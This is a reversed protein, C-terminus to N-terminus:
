FYKRFYLLMDTADIGAFGVQRLMTVLQGRHFTSHNFVHALLEYYPMSYPDGNLRKFDLNEKLKSEDFNEVFTKLAETDEKWLIIHENKSGKFASQLWVHDETKEKRMRQLWIHNASVIHLVTEQISNFNSVVDRTWQEDSIKEFWGCFIDTAWVNYEAVQIFYDKTM